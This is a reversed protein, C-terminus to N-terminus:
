RLPYRLLNQFSDVTIDRSDLLLAFKNKKTEPRKANLIAEVKDANPKLRQEEVKHGLCELSSYALACKTPRATINAKRLRVLLERLIEIHEEWTKTYVLIDDIFSEINSLGHLLKRMLRCFTAPANVLGFPMVSFQFLGVPTRFATKEKATEAMPVQWYGKSLDLHSFYQHGSLSSFIDDANPMPEADFIPVRNLQRFDICFRNTGDKKRVMVVPAAYPSESAEVVGMQLMKDMEDRITTKMQYPVSYSNARVPDDTTMRIDHEVLTTRGPIDTLVDKFEMLLYRIDNEQQVTLKNSMEVDDITEKQISNPATFISNMASDEKNVDSEEEIIASCVASLIGLEQVVSATAVQVREVYQRLLNAHLTKEKGDINVRYDMPGKREIIAFPGRWQMLLKNRKTPLLVIVKDGVNM